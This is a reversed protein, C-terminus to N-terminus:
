ENNNRIIKAIGMLFSMLLKPSVGMTRIISRMFVMSNFSNLNIKEDEFTIEYKDKFLIPIDNEFLYEKFEESKFYPTSNYCNKLNFKIIMDEKFDTETLLRVYQKIVTEFVIMSFSLDCINLNYDYFYSIDKPIDTINILNFPMIFKFSGNNFLEIACGINSTRFDSDIYRLIYSDFSSFINSFKLNVNINVEDSLIKVDENFNNKLRDMFNPTYFDEFLVEENNLYVFFELYPQTYESPTIFENKCFNDIKLKFEKKKDMLKELFYRDSLAKPDSVEGVRQYISGDTLYPADKGEAVYVVLVAKGDSFKVIKSEFYPTPHIRDRVISAIKEKSHQIQDQPIGVIREAYSENDKEKIGVIYWGGNSNAFSALSQAIKKNNPFSEKYEVYWGESVEDDILKEIDVSEIDSVNKNFPYKKDLEFM